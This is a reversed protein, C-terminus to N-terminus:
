VAPLKCNEHTTGKAVGCRGRHRQLVRSPHGAPDGSLGEDTGCAAVARGYPQRKLRGGTVHEPHQEASPKNCTSNRVRRTEERVEPIRATVKGDPKRIAGLPPETHKAAERRGDKASDPDQLSCNIKRTDAEWDKLTAELIELRNTRPMRSYVMGLRTQATNYVNTWLKEAEM